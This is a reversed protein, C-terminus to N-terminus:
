TLFGNLGWSSPARTWAIRPRRHAEGDDRPAREAEGDQAPEEEHEQGHAAEREGPLRAAMQRRLLTQPRRRQREGGSLGVRDGGEVRRVGLDDGAQEAAVRALHLALRPGVDRDEELLATEDLALEGPQSRSACPLARPRRM